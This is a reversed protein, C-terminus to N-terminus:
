ELTMRSVLDDVRVEVPLDTSLYQLEQGKLTLTLTLTLTLAVSFLSIFCSIPPHLNKMDPSMPATKMLILSFLVMGTSFDLLCAPSFSNRQTFLKTNV